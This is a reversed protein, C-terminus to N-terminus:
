EFCTLLYRDQCQDYVAGIERQKNIDCPQEYEVEIPHGSLRCSVMFTVVAERLPAHHPGPQQISLKYPAPLVIYTSNSDKGDVNVHFRKVGTFSGLLELWQQRYLRDKRELRRLMSIHLEEVNFLVIPFSICLQAMSSIQKPLARRFLRLTLRAPAGPRIFSISIANELIIIHAQRHSKHMKIRNIFKGLMSIGLIPHDFFTIEIDELCPADIRIVLSELYEANGWFELCTLAPLIVREESLFPSHCYPTDLFRLSLSRLQAMGSLAITFPEPAVHWPDLDEHLRLDILNISSYLLQLLSPFAIWTSHLRRLRRGCRFTNPLTLTVGDQSLLVLDQLKSFAGEITSLKELLSRTIALSISIVRNSQKLAAMINDEDKPTLPALAPFGGYQVVVPLAPWCDLSKQVPTGHTFFLRLCLAQHSVFVIHRWKRCTHVLRPWARPSVDLFCRFINLLVEDSVSQITVQPPLSRTLSYWRLSKAFSTGRSSSQSPSACPQLCRM